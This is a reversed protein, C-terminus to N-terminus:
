LDDWDVLRRKRIDDDAQRLSKMFAEDQALALSERDVKGLKAKNIAM